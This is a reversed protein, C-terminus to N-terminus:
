SFRDPSDREEKGRGAVTETRTCTRIERSSQPEAIAQQRSIRPEWVYRAIDYEGPGGVCTEKMKRIESIVRATEKMSIRIALFVPLPFRCSDSGCPRESPCSVCNQRADTDPDVLPNAFTSFYRPPARVYLVIVQVDQRSVPLHKCKWADSNNRHM